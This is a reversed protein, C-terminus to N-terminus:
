LLTFGSPGLFSIKKLVGEAGKDPDPHGPAGKASPRSAGSVECDNLSYDGECGNNPDDSRM